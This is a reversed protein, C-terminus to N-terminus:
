ENKDLNMTKLAKFANKLPQLDWSKFARAIKRTGTVCSATGGGERWRGDDDDDDDSFGMAVKNERMNIEAFDDWQSINTHSKNM